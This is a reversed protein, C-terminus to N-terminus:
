RVRSWPSRFPTYPARLRHTGRFARPCPYASGSSAPLTCVALPGCPLTSVPLPLRLSHSIPPSPSPSVGVDDDRRDKLRSGPREPILSSEPQFVAPILNKPTQSGSARTSNRSHELVAVLRQTARASFPLAAKWPPSRRRSAAHSSWFRRRPLRRQWASIDQQLNLRRSGEDEQRGTKGDGM